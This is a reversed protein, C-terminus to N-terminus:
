TNSHNGSTQHEFAADAIALPASEESPSREVNEQEILDEFIYVNRERLDRELAKIASESCTQELSLGSVFQVFGFQWPTPALRTQLGDADFLPQGDPTYCFTQAFERGTLKPHLPQSQMVNLLHEGVIVLPDEDVAESIAAEQEIARVIDLPLLRKAEEKAFRTVLDRVAQEDQPKERLVKALVASVADDPPDFRDLAVRYHQPTFPVIGATDYGPRLLAEKGEVAAKRLVEQRQIAYHAESIVETIATIACKLAEADRVLVERENFLSISESISIAAQFIRFIRDFFGFGKRRERAERIPQALSREIEGLRKSQAVQIGELRRIIEEGRRVIGECFTKSRTMGFWRALDALTDDLWAEANNRITAEHGGVPGSRLRQVIAVLDKRSLNVELVVPQLVRGSIPDRVFEGPLSEDLHRARCFNAVQENINLPENVTERITAATM